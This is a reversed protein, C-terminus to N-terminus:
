DVLENYRSLGNLHRYGNLWLKVERCVYPLASDQLATSQIEPM